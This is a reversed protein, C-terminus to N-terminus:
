PRPPTPPPSGTPTRRADLRRQSEAALALWAQREREAFTSAAALAQDTPKSVGEMVRALEELLRRQKTEDSRSAELDDLASLNGTKRAAAFQSQTLVARELQSWHKAM